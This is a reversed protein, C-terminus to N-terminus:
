CYTGGTPSPQSILCSIVQVRCEAYTGCAGCPDQCRFGICARDLGCESDTECEHHCGQIPNGIFGEQCSCVARGNEVRCRSNAGCPTPNCFDQVGGATM